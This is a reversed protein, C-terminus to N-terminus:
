LIVRHFYTFFIEPSETGNQLHARHLEVEAHVRHKGYDEPVSVVVTFPSNEIPSYYYKRKLQGVRRMNDFHYKVSLEASGNENQTVVALRLQM